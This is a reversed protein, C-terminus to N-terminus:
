LKGLSKSYNVKAIYADYLAQFYSGISRQLETDTQLLEFSSGLGSQYKKTTTNFVSEALEMNSKQVELNILANSLSNKAIVNELDVFQKFQATANDIKQLKLKAQQIKKSKIGSDYIPQNISIGVLGTTFAFWAGSGNIDYIENRQGSRQLQYFAAVTPFYGMKYRKLDLEQLNKSTALVDYESRNEYNLPTDLLMIDSQLKQVDLQDTLILSDSQPIGLTNKLVALSILIGNNLQNQAARTNNLTVSLKDIDLKEAFGNNYMQTMDNKLKELRQLSSLLVTKQNQAILVSYYAKQVAEKLKQVSVNTNNKALEMVKQRAQLAVFVDPQFLLQQLGIGAQYNVPAVFSVSQVGFSAKSVDIANGNADKVGEKALVSYVNIDSTPFPIVPLNTYYTFQGTASIQPLASRKIEENLAMQIEEDLKLNKIEIVNNLATEFAENLSLARIQQAMSHNFTFVLTLLILQKM